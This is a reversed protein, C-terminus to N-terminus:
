AKEIFEYVFELLDKVLILKHKRASQKLVRNCTPCSTILIEAGTERAEEIRKGSTFEVFEPFLSAVGGRRWLLIGM